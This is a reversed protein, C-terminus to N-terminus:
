VSKSVSVIDQQNKDSTNRPRSLSLVPPGYEVRYIIYNATLADADAVANRYRWVFPFVMVWRSLLQLKRPAYSM